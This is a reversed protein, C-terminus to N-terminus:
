NRKMEATLTTDNEYRLNNIIEGLLRSELKYNMPGLIKCSKSPMYTLYALHHYVAHDYEKRLKSGTWENHLVPFGPTSCDMPNCLTPCSQTVSCCCQRLDPELQQKKIQMCIEWSAPLSTRYEWRKLFKGCNTTIWVTLPKLMTLSASTSTKRSNGQKRQSGFFTPLKIEPEGAKELGLKYMQFNETWTSSFNLKFSKSCLRVLMHFLCLQITIQFNEPMERRQIPIFVSRKWDQPKQQTKWIQQCISHQVKAAADKLIQFREAPIGDCGSAKNTTISGLIFKVKGLVGSSSTQSQTLSCVMM